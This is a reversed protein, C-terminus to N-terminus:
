AGNVQYGYTSMDVLSNNVYVVQERSAPVNNVDVEATQEGPLVNPTPQATEDGAAPVTGTTLDYMSDTVTKGVFDVSWDRNVRYAQIRFTGLGEPIDDDVLAVVMGAETDLAMITSRWSAIRARKQEMEGVGGLEERTRVVAIRAAQSKTACGVLGFTSSLPNQIRSNRGAHDQDCYDITNKAFLYDVDAFEVTLKEFTPKLPELRLSGFLMNGAHFETIAAANIRCGLRLKGFSWTYYGLGSNLVDRIWDRTPKSPDITGMFRFQKETGGGFIQDVIEDATGACTVAATSM